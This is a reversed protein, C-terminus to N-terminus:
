KVAGDGTVYKDQELATTLINQTKIIQSNTVADKATLTTNGLLQLIKGSNKENPTFQINFNCSASQLTRPLSEITWTIQNNAEDLNFQGISPSPSGVLNVYKPLNATISVNNIEHIDNTIDWFVAIQTTEDVEPPYPGTGIPTGDDYFYLAKASLSVNTNLKLTVPNSRLPAVNSNEEGGLIVEATNEIKTDSLGEANLDKLKEYPKIPVAFTIMLEKGPKLNNLGTVDQSNWLVEKGKDTKTIEGFNDDDINEWDIIDLPTSNIIMKVKLDEYKNQGNNKVVISYTLINGLEVNKNEASGNIILYSLLAEDTIKIKFEKEYVLHYSSENGRAHIQVKFTQERESEDDFTIDAPFRGEISIKKEESKPQLIDLEWKRNDELPTPQAALYEFKEPYIIQFQPKEFGIDGNNKIQTEINLKQGLTITAPYDTVLDLEPQELLVSLSNEKSFESNFNNPKFVLRAVLKQERDLDDIIRGTIKFQGEQSVNITGLELQHGTISPTTSEIMLGHPYQLVMKTDNLAVDGINKYNIIYEVLEGAKIKEPGTIELHLTEQKFTKNKDFYLFGAFATGALIILIFFATYILRKRKKARTNEILSKLPTTEKEPEAAATIIETNDDLEDAERYLNMLEKIPNKKPTELKKRKFKLSHNKKSM